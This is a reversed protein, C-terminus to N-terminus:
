LHADFDCEPRVKLTACCNKGNQDKFVLYLSSLEIFKLDCKSHQINAILVWMGKLSYVGWVFAIDYCNTQLTKNFHKLDCIFWM